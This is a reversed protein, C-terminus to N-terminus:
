IPEKIVEKLNIIEEITHKIYDLAWRKHMPFARTDSDYQAESSTYQPLSNIDKKIQNLKELIDDLKIEVISDDSEITPQYEGPMLVDDPSISLKIFQEHIINAEKYFGKENLSNALENLIILNQKNM